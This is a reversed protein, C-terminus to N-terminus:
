WRWCRRPSRQAAIPTCCRWGPRTSGGAEGARALEAESLHRGGRGGSRWGQPCCLAPLADRWLAQLTAAAEARRATLALAQLPDLEARRRAEGEAGADDQLIGARAALRAQAARLDSAQLAELRQRDALALLVAARAHLRAARGPDAVAPEPAPPRRHATPLIAGPQPPVPPEALLAAQVRRWIRSVRRAWLREPFAGESRKSRRVRGAAAPSSGQPAPRPLAAPSYSM